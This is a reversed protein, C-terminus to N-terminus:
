AAGAEPLSPAASEAVPLHVRFHTLGAADDRDHTIRGNMDRVLKRVLALGLGQGQKRSTVFPEFVHDHLAPDIGPGNDSVRIEIPLRIPGTGGQPHLQIGSAFRTRLVIRPHSVARTAEAANTLLNLLVQMLADGSVMVAPLSPDFEEIIEVAQENAADMVAKARRIAVHLNIPAAPEV